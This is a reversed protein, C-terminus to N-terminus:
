DDREAAEREVRLISGDGADVVVEVEQRASAEADTLLEVEYVLFGDEEDLEAETVRADPVEALAARQAEELGIEALDAYDDGEQVPITGQIPTAAATAYAAGALLPLCLLLAVLARRLRRPEDPRHARANRM